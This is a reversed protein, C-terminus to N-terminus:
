GVPRGIFALLKTQPDADDPVDVRPGFHGSSRLLEDMPLMADIMGGVEDALLREDLGTAHALDWTHLFVDNTVIQNLLDGRPQAPMPGAQVPTLAMVPDSLVHRLADDLAHWAGM